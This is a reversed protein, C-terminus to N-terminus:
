EFDEDDRLATLGGKHIKLVIEQHVTISDRPGSAQHLIRDYSGDPLISWVITESYKSDDGLVSSLRNITSVTFPVGNYWITTRALGSM